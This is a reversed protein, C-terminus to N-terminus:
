LNLAKRVNELLEDMPVTDNPFDCRWLYRITMDKDVLVFGRNTSGMMKPSRAKRVIFGYDKSVKLDPDSIHEYSTGIHEMWARHNEITDYNVHVLSVNMRKFEEAREDMLAIYNTCTMGFNVVYFYLLVPGKKVRESLTFREYVSDLTFDPAKDGVKLDDGPYREDSYYVGDKEVMGKRPVVPSMIEYGNDQMKKLFEAQDFRWEGVKSHDHVSDRPNAGTGISTGGAGWRLAIPNPPVANVNRARTAFRIVAAIQAHREVSIEELDGVPTGKPNIRKMSCIAMPMFERITVINDALEENTHEIGIPDIGCSLNLKSDKIAQLTKLRREPPFPTDIGERLHLTHYAGKYGADFLRNCQETTLEGTNVSLMFEGKVESKITRGIECLRDVSYFETTRITFRRFGKAFQERVMEVLKEVPIEYDDKMLGWKEGFSCFRCSSKCPRYDLGFATGITGVNGRIRALERAKRGMYDCEESEPDLSLLWVIDEKTIDFPETKSTEFLSDIRDLVEQQMPTALSM